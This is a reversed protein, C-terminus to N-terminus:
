KNTILTNMFDFARKYSHVEKNTIIRDMAIIHKDEMKDKVQEVLFLLDDETLTEIRVPEFDDANYVDSAIGLESACKKLADTAASKLDNGISLPKDSKVKISKGNEDKIWENQYIIEKNGFQTKIITKDGIRCILRGKVIAEDHIIKEDLIEFDWNFGFMLNLCKRVYAGSVYKWTGGGKAPREKIYVDPTRSLLVQMQKDNLLNDEILSLDKKTLVTEKM